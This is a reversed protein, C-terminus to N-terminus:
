EALREYIKVTTDVHRLLAESATLVARAHTTNVTNVPPTDIAATFQQWQEAVARLQAAAEPNRPSATNPDTRTEPNLETSLETLNQAFERRSQEMYVAVQPACVRWDHFLFLKTLRASLMRNRGAINVRHGAATGARLDAARTLQDAADLVSESLEFVEAARLRTPPLDLLIQRYDPWADHLRALRAGTQGDLCLSDLRVLNREFKDVSQRLSLKAASPTLKRGLMAWATAMLQSLMRQRGCLNILAAPSIAPIPDHHPTKPKRTFRLPIPANNSGHMSLAANQIHVTRGDVVIAGSDALLRLTRSFSEPAMGIRSAILKKSPELRVTTEGATGLRDGAIDMLYDLVRQAGTHAHHNVVEFEIACQRKAMMELLRASLEVNRRVVKHFVDAAISVVVCASLTEAFSTYTKASFLEGIAFIHQPQVLEVVKEAGNELITARKISGSMLFHADRVSDGARFLLHHAPLELLRSAKGLQTLTEAGVGAFLDIGALLLPHEIISLDFASM